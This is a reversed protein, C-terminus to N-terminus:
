KVAINQWEITNIMQFVVAGSDAKNRWPHFIPTELLEQAFEGICIPNRQDTSITQRIPQHTKSIFDSTLDQINSLAELVEM